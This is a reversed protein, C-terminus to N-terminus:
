LGVVISDSLLRWILIVRR